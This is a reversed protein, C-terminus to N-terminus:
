RTLRRLAAATSIRKSGKKSNCAYHAALNHPIMKVEGTVPDTKTIWIRDDRLSGGIGRSNVHEFTVDEPNMKQGCLGCFWDQREAMDLRRRKYEARGDKSGSCIERGDKLIWVVPTIKKGPKPFRQELKSKFESVERYRPHLIKDILNM